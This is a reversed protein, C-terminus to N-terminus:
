FIMYMKTESGLPYLLDLFSSPYPFSSFYHGLYLVQPLSIKEVFAIKTSGM